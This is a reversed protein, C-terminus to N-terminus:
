TSSVKADNVNGSLVSFANNLFVSLSATDGTRLGEVAEREKLHIVERGGRGRRKEKKGKEERRKRRRRKKKKKKEREKWEEGKKNRLHRKTVKSAM